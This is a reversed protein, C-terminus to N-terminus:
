QIFSSGDSRMGMRYLYLYRTGVSLQGLEARSEARGIRCEISNESFATKTARKMLDVTHYTGFTCFERIGFDRACKRPTRDPCPERLM